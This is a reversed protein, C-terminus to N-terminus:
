KCIDILPPNSTLICCFYRGFPPPTTKHTKLQSNGTTPRSTHEVPRSVGPRRWESSARCSLSPPLWVSLFISYCGKPRRWVPRRLSCGCFGHFGNCPLLYAHGNSGAGLRRPRRRACGTFALPTSTNENSFLLFHSNSVFLCSPGFVETKPETITQMTFTRM